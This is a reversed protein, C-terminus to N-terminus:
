SVCPSMVGHARGILEDFELQQDTRLIRKLLFDRSETSVLPIFHLLAICVIDNTHVMRFLQNIVLFAMRLIKSKDRLINLTQYIPLNLQFIHKFSEIRREECNLQLDLVLSFLDSIFLILMSDGYLFPNKKSLSSDVIVSCSLLGMFINYFKLNELPLRFVKALCYFIMMMLLFALFPITLELPREISYVINLHPIVIGYRDM